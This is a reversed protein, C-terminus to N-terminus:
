AVQPPRRPATPQIIKRQDPTLRALLEGSHPYDFRERVYKPSYRYVISRRYGPNTREASGHTIADTFMVVDGAKLHVEQTAFATGAPKGTFGDYVIGKGNQKLRPHIESCKHSGPILVPAGDGPGIDNLAM